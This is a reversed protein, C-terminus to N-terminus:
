IKLTSIRELNKTILTEHKIGIESDLITVRVGKREDYEQIAYVNGIIPIISILERYRDNQTEQESNVM